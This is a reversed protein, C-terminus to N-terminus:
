AETVLALCPEPVSGAPSPPFLSPQNTDARLYCLSIRCKITVFLSNALSKGPTGGDM